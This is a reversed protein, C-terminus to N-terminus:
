NGAFSFSGGVKLGVQVNMKQDDYISVEQGGLGGDTRANGEIILFKSNILDEKRDKKVVVSTMKVTPATVNGNADTDASEIQRRTDYYVSDVVNTDADALFLQVDTLFPFGNEILTRVMVENVNDFREEGVSFEVTDRLSWSHAYGRLPMRLRSKIRVQSEDTVFNYQNPGSSPNSEGDVVHHIWKPTSNVALDVDSNNKDITWTTNASSGFESLKPADIIFPNTGSYNLSQKNGTNFNIAQLTDVTVGVPIGFSNEIDLELLSENLQFVGPQSGKFVKLLISDQSFAIQRQGFDGFVADFAIGNLSIDIDVSGNSSANSVTFEFEAKNPNGMGDLLEWRHDSLSYSKSSTSNTFSINKTFTNGNPGRLGPVKIELDASASGSIQLDMAGNKVWVSDIDNQSNGGNFNYTFNANGGGGGTFNVTQTAATQDPIDIFKKGEFSILDGDYVLSVLGTSNDVSVDSSDTRAMIDYVGVESNVVPAAISPNYSTKKLRDTEFKDKNCATLLVLLALPFISQLKKM